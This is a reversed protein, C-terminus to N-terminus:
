ERIVNYYDTKEYNLENISHIKEQLEKNQPNLNYSIQYFKQANILDALKEYIIGLKLNLNYQGSYGSNYAIKYHNLAHHYEKRKFYYDGLYYNLDANNKNINMAKSFYSKALAGKDAIDYLRALRIFSKIDAPPMMTLTYYEGIALQLYHDKEAQNQTKELKHFYFDAEELLQNRNVKKYNFNINDYELYGTQTAFIKGAPCFANFLLIIISLGLTSIINQKFTM